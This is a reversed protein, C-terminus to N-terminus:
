FNKIKELNAAKIYAEIDKMPSILYWGSSVKSIIEVEVGESLMFLVNQKESPAIYTPSNNNIIVGYDNGIEIQIRIFLICILIILIIGIVIALKFILRFKKAFLFYTVFSMSFVTFLIISIVTLFNINFIKIFFSFIKFILSSEKEEIKSSNDSVVLRRALNLNEQIYSDYRDYHLARNYYLIAYGPKMNEKNMYANAMNYYLYGNRIGSDELRHYLNLAKEYDGNQYYSNAKNFVSDIEEQNVSYATLVLGTIILFVLLSVTILKIFKM